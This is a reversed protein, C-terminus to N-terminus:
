EANGSVRDLGGIGLEMRFAKDVPTHTAAAKDCLHLFERGAAPQHLTVRELAILGRVEAPPSVGHEAAAAHAFHQRRAGERM